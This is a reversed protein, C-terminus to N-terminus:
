VAEDKGHLERAPSAQLCVFFSLHKQSCAVSYICVHSSLTVASCVKCLLQLLYLKHKPTHTRVSSMNFFIGVIQFCDHTTSALRSMDRFLHTVYVMKLLCLSLICRM